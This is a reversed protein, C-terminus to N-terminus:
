FAFTKSRKLGRMIKYMQVFLHVVLYVPASFSVQSVLYILGYISKMGWKNLPPVSKDIMKEIEEESCM